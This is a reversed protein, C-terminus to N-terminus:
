FLVPNKRDPSHYGQEYTDSRPFQSVTPMSLTYRNESRLISCEMHEPSVPVKFQNLALVQVALDSM